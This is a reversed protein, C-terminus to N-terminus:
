HQALAFATSSASSSAIKKFASFATTAKTETSSPSLSTITSFAHL